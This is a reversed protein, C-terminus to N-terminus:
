IENGWADWGPFRERAFLEIRPLDGFLQYIKARFLDPKQSHKVRECFSLGRVVNSKKYKTMAGKTGLLCLEWSKLTWPAINCATKGNSTQKIWNFAVTKYTFGWAELVEVGLNLHSDTVWLFCAADKLCIDKIPLAKIEEKSMTPYKTDLSQSGGDTNGNNLKSQRGYRWPPDAYIINYKKNPLNFLNKM